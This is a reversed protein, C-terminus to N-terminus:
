VCVGKVRHHQRVHWRPVWTMGHLRAGIVCSHTYKTGLTDAVGCGRRGGRNMSLMSVLWLCLHGGSHYGWSVGAGAIVSV